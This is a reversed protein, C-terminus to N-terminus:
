PIIDAVALSIDDFASLSVSDGPKLTRHSAFGENSPQTFMELQRSQLDVIWVEPIGVRSYIPLKVDRDYRLSTDSAEILLLVDGAGPHGSAYYDDKWKLIMVDPEPENFQDFRVPSHVSLIARHDLIIQLLHNLRMVCSAHRPSKPEMEVIHGEILEVRDDESLIGIEALKYYEDVSFRRHTVHQVRITM